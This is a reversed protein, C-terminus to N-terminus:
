NTIILKKTLSNGNIITKCLYVGSTVFSGSEDAGNWSIKYSGQNQHKQTLSKLVKGNVDSIEIVVDGAQKIEYQFTIPGNAPNPYVFLDNQAPAIGKQINNTFSSYNYNGITNVNWSDTTGNTKNLHMVDGTFTISRVDTLLYSTQTSNKFNFYISQARTASFGICTILLIIYKKKM